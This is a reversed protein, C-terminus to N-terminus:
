EVEVAGQAGVQVHSTGGEFVPPAAAEAVAAPAMRAM